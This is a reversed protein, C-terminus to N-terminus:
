FLYILNLFIMLFTLPPLIIWLLYIVTFAIFSIAMILFGVFVRGLRLLPGIVRGMYSYDGYIPQFLLKLNLFVGVDNEIGKIFGIESHWFDRSSKVYWFHLFNLLGKGLNAPLNVFYEVIM